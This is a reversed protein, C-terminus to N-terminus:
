YGAMTQRTQPLWSDMWTQVEANSAKREALAQAEEYRVALNGIVEVFESYLANYPAMHVALAKVGEDVQAITRADQPAPDALAPAAFALCLAATIAIIKM